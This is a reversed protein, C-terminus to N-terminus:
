KSPTPLLHQCVENYIEVTSHVIPELLAKRLKTTFYNDFFSRLVTGFIVELSQPSPAPMQFKLFHRVFRSSLPHRGGGPPACAAVFTVDEVWTWAWTKKDYMGRQDVVQRLLEIASQVGYADKEALNVDDLFIVIRKGPAAGYKNKRKHVLMTELTDQMVHCTTQGSLHYVQHNWVSGATGEMRRLTDEISVSKGVGSVGSMFVGRGMMLGHELLFGFRSTDITPVLLRALPGSLMDTTVSFVPMSLDWRKMRCENKPDPYYDFVGGKGPFDVKGRFTDQVFEDFLEWSSPDLSGGVGWVISFVFIRLLIRKHRTLPDEDEDWTEEPGAPDEVNPDMDIQHRIVLAQFMNMSTIILSSDTSPISETCAKRVYKLVADAHTDYLRYIYASLRPHITSSVRFPGPPPLLAAAANAATKTAGSPPLLSAIVDGSNASTAVIPPPPTSPPAPAATSMRFSIGPLPPPHRGPMGPPGSTTTATSTTPPTAASAGPRGGPGHQVEPEILTSAPLQHELWTKVLPRWGLADAPVYVMGCRSVTAPSAASLDHVEFLMRLSSADLRIREGNPLCLM